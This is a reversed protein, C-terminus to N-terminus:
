LVIPDNNSESIHSVENDHVLYWINLQGTRGSRQARGIVQKEIESDCKHFMIIDTTNELNLGSGYNSSNVLLVDLNSERYKILKQKIHNKNGKLYSFNISSENTLRAAIQQFTNDYSSFILFKSNPQRKELILMLNQIKTNSDHTQINNTETDSPLIVDSILVDRATLKSKCLPCSSNLNIWVHICKFCFSHGCPTISKNEIDDFCVPCMLTSTIRESISEIKRNLDDIRENLRTIRLTKDSLNNYNMLNVNQLQVNFNQLDTRYKNILINIIGGESHRQRTDILDIASRVDGANLCEMVNREVLGNLISLMSPEKCHIIHILPMPLTFAENVYSDQNKCVIMNLFDRKMHVLDNFLTRVYGTNKLGTAHYVYCMARSDVTRFGQPYLLNGYSATVFWSFYTPIELTNPLNMSDIEDYIIRTVKIKHILLLNALSNHMNASIVVLNYAEILNVNKRFPEMSKLNTIMIYKFDSSYSNIYENWQDCLIHPIVLISVNIPKEQVYVVVKNNGFAQMKYHKNKENNRKDNVLSLIVYSKGAGMKDGIIGVRTEVFDNNSNLAIKEREFDYCRQLLTLQHPKLHVLCNSDSQSPQDARPDNPGLENVNLDFAVHRREM